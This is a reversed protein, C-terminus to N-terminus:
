SSINQEWYMLDTVLEYENGNWKFGIDHKNGQQIILDAAHTMGKYGRVLNDQVSWEIGLETLSTKLTELNYLKTKVKTFHSM